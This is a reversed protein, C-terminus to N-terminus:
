ILKYFFGNLLKKYIHKAKKIIIKPLKLLNAIQIGYSKNNGKNVIKYMFYINNEKELILFSYNKINIYYKKMLILEHYHTSIIVIPKYLSNSLYDIISWAISIGDYNSTGRGIEDFIIFSKYDINNITNSIEGMEIMFTSEGTNISDNFGIRTFIKNFITFKFYEAPVYCGIQALIIMLTIKRLFISKGSMNPGSIIIINNKYNIKIDNSIYEENNKNKLYEVIPHRGKIIKIYSNNSKKIHPLTYKYKKSIITFSIIVDIKSIYYAINYIHNYYKKIKKKLKDLIKKEEKIKKNKYYFIKKELHFIYKTKYRNTSLLTQKHIWQKSINKNKKKIEIFYGLFNNYKLNFKYKKKKNNIYILLKNKYKKYQNYYFDLKNSINNNIIKKKNNLINKINIIKKIKLCIKKYIYIIINNNNTIINNILLLKNYIYYIYKISIYLKYLEKNSIKNILLKSYIREIDYINKLYKIIKKKINNNKLFFNILKYRNYLKKKNKIPNIIWKKLLRKGLVTINKNLFKFLTINNNHSYILDLNNISYNDLWLYKNNNIIKINNIYKIININNNLLYKYIIYLTIICLKMNDIGYIKLSNLNLYNLLHNYANKYKYFWLDTKYYTINKNINFKKFIEKKQNKCLLIEKINYLSIINNIISINYDELTYIERTSIDLLSIGIKKNKIFLSCIYNNNSKNNLLKYDIITGPTIINTVKRYIIKKKKKQNCIVVKFNNFLLKNLYINLSKCPFGALLINKTYKGINRKTLIINLIKSCIIADKDFIEYFEGVQFLIIYKSYKKKISFYEKMLSNKKM